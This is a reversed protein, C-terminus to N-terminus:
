FGIAGRSAEGAEEAAEQRRDSDGRGGGAEPEVSLVIRSQLGQVGQSRHLELVLEQQFHVTGGGRLRRALIWTMMRRRLRPRPRSHSQIEAPVKVSRFSPTSEVLPASVPELLESGKIVYESLSLSQNSYNRHRKQPEKKVVVVSASSAFFSSTILRIQRAHEPKPMKRITLSPM